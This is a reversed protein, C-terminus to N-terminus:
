TKPGTFFSLDLGQMSNASRCSKLGTRDAQGRLWFGYSHCLMHFDRLRSDNSHHLM